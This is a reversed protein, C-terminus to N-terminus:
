AARPFLGMKRGWRSIHPRGPSGAYPQLVEMGPEFRPRRPALRLTMALSATISYPASTRLSSHERGALEATVHVRM